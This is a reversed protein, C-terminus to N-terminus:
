GMRWTCNRFIAPTLLGLPFLADFSNNDPQARLHPMAKANDPLWTDVLERGAADLQEVLGAKAKAFRPATQNVPKRLLRV